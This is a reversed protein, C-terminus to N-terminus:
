RLPESTDTQPEASVLSKAEMKVNPEWFEPKWFPTPFETSAFQGHKQPVLPNGVHFMTLHVCDSIDAPFIGASSISTSWKGLRLDELNVPRTFFSDLWILLSGRPVFLGVSGVAYNALTPKKKEPSLFAETAEAIPHLSLSYFQAGHKAEKRRRLYPVVAAECEKVSCAAAMYVINDFPLRPHRVLMENSVIAGMSHGVLTISYGNGLDKEMRDLFMEVAGPVSRVLYNAQRGKRDQGKTEVNPVSGTLLAGLKADIEKAVGKSRREKATQHDALKVIERIALQHEKTQDHFRTPSDFLEHARRLMMDWAGTGIADLIIEAPAKLVLSLNHLDGTVKQVRSREDAERLSAETLDPSTSGPQHRLYRLSEQSFVTRRHEHRSIEAEILKEWVAPARVLARAIDAALYFPSTLPGMVPQYQGQRVLFLHESYSSLPESNWNIFIPYYEARLDSDAGLIASRRLSQRPVNMGGHIFILIKKKGSKKINRILPKLYEDRYREPDVPHREDIVPVFGSATEEIQPWLPKGNPAAAIVHNRIERDNLHDPVSQSAAAAELVCSVFASASLIISVARFRQRQKFM